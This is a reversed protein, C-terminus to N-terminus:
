GIIKEIALHVSSLFDVVRPGWRGSTDTDVPIVQNNKVATMTGWGPRQAVTEASEGWDADGLFILDPNADVIFESSLQPWGFGGEIAPDAINSLGLLSYLKGLFTSSTPSYYTNDIEHYYSLGEGIKTSAIKNLESKIEEILESAASERGTIEGLKDIQSYTDEMSGATEQLLTAVSLAELGSVLDGPDYSAVVLDPEYESIAEINPTYGSLSTMPAEEPFNSQDDVAIVRDGAGIAFLIETATPSLSIIREAVEVDSSVSSVSVQESSSDSGCAASVLSAAVILFVLYFKKIKMNEGERLTRCSSFELTESRLREEEPVITTTMEGVAETQSGLLNM